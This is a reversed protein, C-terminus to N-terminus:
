IIKVSVDTIYGSIGNNKGYENLKETIKGKHEEIIDVIFMDKENETMKSLKGEVTFRIAKTMLKNKNLVSLFVPVLSKYDIDSATIKFEIM